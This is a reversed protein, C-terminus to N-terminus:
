GPCLPMEEPADPEELSLLAEVAEDIKRKKIRKVVRDNRKAASADINVKTSVRGM